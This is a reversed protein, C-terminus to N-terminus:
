KYMDHVQLKGFNNAIAVENPRPGCAVATVKNMMDCLKSVKCTDSAWLYVSSNLGVCLLNSPSWDLLNVYFDDELSPADLVKFPTKSIVRDQGQTTEYFKDCIFDPVSTSNEQEASYKFAKLNGELGLIRSKYKSLLM